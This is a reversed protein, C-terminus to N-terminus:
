FSMGQCLSCVWVETSVRGSSLGVAVGWLLVLSLSRLAAVGLLFVDGDGELLVDGADFLKLVPMGAEWPFRGESM